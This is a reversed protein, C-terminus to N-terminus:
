LSHISYTLVKSRQCKTNYIIFFNHFPVNKLAPFQHLFHVFIVAIHATYVTYLKFLFCQINLVIKPQKYNWKKIHITKFHSHSNTFTSCSLRKGANCVLFWKKIQQHDQSAFCAIHFYNQCACNDYQNEFMINTMLFQHYYHYELLSSLYLEM